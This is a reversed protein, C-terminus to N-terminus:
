RGGYEDSAVFAEHQALTRFFEHTGSNNLAYYYEDTTEPYLAARISEIGPNAIPGPPLGEHMYTNYPSDIDTSWPRGTGSIAYSITADIQLFPFNDHDNLRNYIVAAIRPREEDSGAEREIISAVTIIDRISYDMFEAREIYTETFRRDFESLLRNIAQVPTSDLYFNYTDPFLFGELRHREGITSKDLFSYKFDYNTATDWLDTAPCVQYDELRIFIDSLSFGEPITVTTEVLEGQWATMGYVLSRYDFSKNLVYSGATIKAEAKSYDAYLKFLFKYKILGADYLRDVIDEITFGKPVTINVQEAVTGFGLVDSAAMWALSALILSICIVFVSYLVGGVCGTRRERRLRLPKEEPVDIYASEFDFNIKFDAPGTDLPMDASKRELQKGDPPTATTQPKGKQATTNLSVSSKPKVSGAKQSVASTNARNIGARQGPTPIISRSPVPRQPASSAGKAPQATKKPAALADHGIQKPQKPVSSVGSSDKTSVQSSADDNSGNSSSIQPTAGDNSGDSSSIQPAIVRDPEPMATSANLPTIAADQEPQDSVSSQLAADDSDQQNIGTEHFTSTEPEQKDPDSERPTPSTEPEQKDPDSERPTVNTEPEQNDTDSSPPAAVDASEANGQEANKSSAQIKKVADDLWKKIEDSSYPM